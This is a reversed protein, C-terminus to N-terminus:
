SDGCDYNMPSKRMEIMQMIGNEQPVEMAAPVYTTGPICKSCQRRLAPRQRSARCKVAFRLEEAMEACLSQRASQASKKSNWCFEAVATLIAVALGCMLVVFVGGINDVGLANAKGDKNKDDRSCTIGPSKWWKNYLMQIVGKEQLDLIALSIKDRWPSGMPTAIGYGKSDLLGGVQTLNCDRQVMYDLMTSEMLFAYNGELVRQVGEEYSSVFVGPRSEMFRWMKLYTEIKSDRFFTMTSGGELTGYSIKSQEALDEVSEIPTIMREVTLFAALNATYSSIMILTFFWWIAGIIRTSTAKPNLDCGQHMLTVITFWFSNGLSFQNEMVDCETVCPHPNQWEYPSFRAVIFMTGSVLVYAALVYLWIDVALPSMFSFLRVPMNKPLKFLIGIGLNMFPKTFDIVSERAYNITMPAVALDANEITTVRLTINTTGFEHFADHNTVNLGNATSWEGVKEMNNQRLKLLDLKLNSRRGEKFQIKGTLGCFEVSNVYNFLSSGDTWPVEEECSVNAPRLTAGGQLANLGWALAYVSDYILAPETKIVNTRNIIHHGISQFKEMDKLTNKAGCYDTDIIRFATMNVFNYKFDELNYTEVDLTTFHYYYKYDNMQVQLIAKLLHPLNDPKTDVVISYIGRGKIDRLVDRFGQQDTKRFVYQVNKPVPLKLLEQLNILANDDEYIIAVKTWNLYKTLDRLARGLLWPSPFLNISFEKVEPEVDLRAEIHPIDLADCLSQIHSGMLANQPGFIASVGSNVQQCAKKAAHFSDDKPIYQIDYVLTTNALLLKDKNIRYVSYKFALESPSDRQDETFLAGVKVVAPLAAVNTVMLIICWLHIGM